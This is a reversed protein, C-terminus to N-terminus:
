SIHAGKKIITIFQYNINTASPLVEEFGEQCDGQQFKASLKLQCFTPLHDDSIRRRLLCECKHINWIWLHPEQMQLFDASTADSICLTEKNEATIRM